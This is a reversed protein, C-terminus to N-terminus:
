IMMLLPLTIIVGLLFWGPHSFKESPILDRIIIYTLTGTIFAILMYTMAIDPRFLLAFFGGVLTSTSLLLELNRKKMKEVIHSLAVSSLIKHLFIPVFLAFGLAPSIDFALVILMGDLFGDIYFGAVDM